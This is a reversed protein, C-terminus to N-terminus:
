SRYVFSYTLLMRAREIDPNEDPATAAGRLGTLRMLYGTGTPSNQTTAYDDIEVESTETYLAYVMDQMTRLQAQWNRAKRSVWADVELLAVYDVGRLGGGVARGQWRDYTNVPLHLFSYAPLAAAAEQVNAYMGPMAALWAPRDIAELGAKLWANLSAEANFISTATLTTM